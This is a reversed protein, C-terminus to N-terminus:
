HNLAAVAEDESDVFKLSLLGEGRRVMGQLVHVDTPFNGNQTLIVRREPRLAVAHSVAKFQNLTTSDCMAVQGPRAGILPAIADGLLSPMELWQRQSWGRRRLNVWDDLLGQAKARAVKPMPGVSNADMFIVDGPLEFLARIGALQDKADLALADAHSLDNM